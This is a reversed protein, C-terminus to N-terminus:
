WTILSTLQMIILHYPKGAWIIQIPYKANSVLKEFRELDHLLLDARKYGAFRRAWVITLVNPDFLKETQNLVEDFLEKKLEFKRKNYAKISKKEFSKNIAKDQWFNQNQANTIPIIKSIGDFGKWMDQSVKAHLKSVANSKKSMRLASVTYNIM